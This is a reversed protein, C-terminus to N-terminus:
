RNTSMLPTLEDGYPGHQKNWTTVLTLNEIWGAMNADKGDKDPNRYIGSVSTIGEQNGNEGQGLEINHTKADPNEPGTLRWPAWFKGYRPINLELKTEPCLDSNNVAHKGQGFRAFGTRTQRLSFDM